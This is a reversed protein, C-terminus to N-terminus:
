DAPIALSEHLLFAQKHAQDIREFEEETLLGKNLLQRTYHKAIEYPISEVPTYM